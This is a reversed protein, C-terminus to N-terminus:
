FKCGTRSASFLRYRKPTLKHQKKNYYKRHTSNEIKKKRNGM